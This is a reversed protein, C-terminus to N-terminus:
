EVRNWRMGRFLTLVYGVKNQVDRKIVTFAENGVWLETGYLQSYKVCTGLTLDEIDGYFEFGSLIEFSKEPEPAALNCDLDSIDFKGSAFKETDTLPIYSGVDLLKHAEVSDKLWELTAISVGLADAAIGKRSNKTRIGDNTLLYDVQSKNFTLIKSGTEWM